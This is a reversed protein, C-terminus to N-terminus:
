SMTQRALNVLEDCRENYDNGAHGKVWVFDVNHIATLKLLEQWLDQNAVPKKGATKWGKKVWNDLWGDCFAKQLYQSDTHLKVNCPKKLTRLAQIAALLEMRNNTTDCEAGSIEKKLDHKESILVAAWGGPGPNPSCGGDTYIDVTDCSSPKEPNFLTKM